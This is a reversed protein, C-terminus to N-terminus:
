TTQPDHRDIADELRTTSKAAQPMSDEFVALVHTASEAIKLADWALSYFLISLRTKSANDQIRVVQNEDFEDVLLRIEKNLGSIESCDPCEGTRLNRSTRKLIDCVLDRVKGLEIKQEELLGSHNNAVHLHARVVIDRLSESIEQLTSITHAYRRSDQVAEWQLLRFVKFINAAIINSWLQIRRQKERAEKLQIRNEAFLSNFSLDLAKCVEALFIAAHQSTAEAAANADKIKRLNFVEVSDDVQARKRHLRHNRYILFAALLTIGLVAWAGGFFIISAFISSVTFAMMATVFWGGVVTLVGSVRYVASDRGWAQDSLSAGMAVMFTVYTTSLPLKFSTALSILAAAVMLNVAARILDFSPMTGDAEPTPRHISRDFRRNVSRRLRNPLLRSTTGIWSSVLRVITRSLVTSEFREFGEEQRGLQVTTATVSRAKRSIWLTVVMVVGAFLLIITNGRVPKILAEMTANLPDATAAAEQYASLGALPVGIFNVLDNAAFAMALAFTGVLVIFKLINVRTFSLLIQLIVASVVFSGLLILGTNGKIWTLIEPTIFSAGKSGKVLIFYTISSLGVGGWIAGYRRIRTEYDFTFIIRSIYQVVAGVAFAVVVSLLIGFIIALAKGTNIYEVVRAFSDGDNYLKLLSVAVAAGLLEFVISVTTSTPLGFTNYLDLLLIDTLMVALFITMLEPMTFFQPNFIGKRAVEMMGSSFTVGALMGVSAVVMIVNRSAVRSGISSNLFNVADNSVGVILDSLALGFLILIAIQFFEM